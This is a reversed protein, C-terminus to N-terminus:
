NKAVNTSTTKNLSAIVHHDASEDYLPSPWLVHDDTGNTRLEALIANRIGKSIRCQFQVIAVPNQNGGVIVPLMRYDAADDSAILDLIDLVAAASRAVRPFGRDDCGEWRTVVGGDHTPYVVGGSNREHFHVVQISWIRLMLM